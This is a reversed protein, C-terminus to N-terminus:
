GIGTLWSAAKLNFLILTLGHGWFKIGAMIFMSKPGSLIADEEHLNWLKVPEFPRMVPVIFSLM